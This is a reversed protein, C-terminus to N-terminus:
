LGYTKTEKTSVAKEPFVQLGKFPCTDCNCKAYGKAFHLEINEETDLLSQEEIKSMEEELKLFATESEICISDFQETDQLNNAILSTKQKQIELYNCHLKGLNEFYNTRTVNCSFTISLSVFFLFYKKM